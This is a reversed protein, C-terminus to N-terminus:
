DRCVVLGFVRGAGSAKLIDACFNLTMGTTTVDDLIVYDGAIQSLRSKLRFRLAKGSLREQRSLTKQSRGRLRVLLRDVPVKKAKMSKALLGVPDIGTQFIRALRPPVPVVPIGQWEEKWRLVLLDALYAAIRSDGGYKLSSLWDRLIGSWPGVAKIGDLFQVGSRCVPCPDDSGALDASCLSCSEEARYRMKKDCEPCPRMFEGGTGGCGPCLLLDNKM